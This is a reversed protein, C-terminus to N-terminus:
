NHEINVIVIEKKLALNYVANNLYVAKILEEVADFM